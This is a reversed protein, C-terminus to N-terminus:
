ESATTFTFFPRHTRPEEARPVGPLSVTLSTSVHAGCMERARRGRWRALKLRRPTSRPSFRTSARAILGANPRQIIAARLKETRCTEAKVADTVALVVEWSIADERNAHELDALLEHWFKAGRYPRGAGRVSRLRAM